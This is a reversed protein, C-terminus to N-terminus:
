SAVSGAFTQITAQEHRLFAPMERFSVFSDEKSWTSKLFAQFADSKYVRELANALFTAKAKDTGAKVVISRWLGVSVNYGFESSAPVAPLQSVRRSDFVLLPLMQGSEIYRKVNGDPDCMVDVQNGLVAAYREGPNAFPIATLKLGKRLLLRVILEQESGFSDIAIKLQSQRATRELDTWKNYPSGKAVFLTFPQRNMLALPLLDNLKWAHEKNSINDYFTDSTLQGMTYGDADANMLKVMGNNGDAGPVNIVPVSASALTDQLVKAVARGMQDAGGGPGWPVILSIPRSPYDANQARAIQM